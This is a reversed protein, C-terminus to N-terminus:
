GTSDDAIELDKKNGSDILWQLATDWNIGWPFFCEVTDNDTVIGCATLCLALCLFTVGTRFPYGRM